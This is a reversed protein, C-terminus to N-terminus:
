DDEVDEADPGLDGDTGLVQAYVQRTRELPVMGKLHRRLARRATEPDRPNVLKALQRQTLGREAMRERLWEAYPTRRAETTSM